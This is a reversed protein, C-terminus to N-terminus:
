SDMLLHAVLNDKNLLEKLILNREELIQNKRRKEQLLLDEQQLRKAYYQQRDHRMEQLLQSKLAKTRYMKQTAKKSKPTAGQNASGSSTSASVNEVNAVNEKGAQDTGNSHNAIESTKTMPDVTDSALLLTPYINKKKGLIKQTADAYEFERRAAGTKNNDAIYKKFSRELVRWRNECHISSVNKGTIAKMERAIEEFMRKLSKMRLTGM